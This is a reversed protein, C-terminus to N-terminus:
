TCSDATQYRKRILAALDIPRRRFWARLYEWFNEGLRYCTQKLTMLSDRFSKGDSSKTSGSVKRFKVMGRIDRESDNNHLPLGPHDLAKLMEDRYERFNNLVACVGPSKVEMAVLADYAAFVQNKGTQTLSVEKVQSYLSWIAERVQQIEEEIEPTSAILKRLPREMHVWCAAHDLIAFQGARDSILVQEPKLLTEQIFGILGAELCILRLKKNQIGMRNLLQNLGTQRRYRKGKYSEFANLLDDNVGSTFLHWIFADNIIYGEQGQALIKLFNARSKSDTTKYYAFYRGGIHTCYESQHCHKAGTDDVRIYSAEKLGASLIDESHEEFGEVEDMLINHIQGESIDFGLSSVFQFIAPQTTGSAYLGVIMSRLDPGFHSGLLQEPLTGRIISGDPAQWVELKYTVDKAIVELEQISYTTYGKFRSGKPVDSVHIIVEEKRKQAPARSHTNNNNTSNAAKKGKSRKKGPRFKPRKPTKKLRGIEDKLAQMTSKLEAIQETQAQITKAQEQNTATQEQITTAQEQITAAQEQILRILSGVWPLTRQRAPIEKLNM